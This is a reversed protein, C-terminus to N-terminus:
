KTSLLQIAEISKSRLSRIPYYITWGACVSNKWETIYIGSKYLVQTLEYSFIYYDNGMDSVNIVESERKSPFIRSPFKSTKFDYCVWNQGGDHILIKTSHELPYFKLKGVGQIFYDPLDIFKRNVRTSELNIVERSQYYEIFIFNGIFFSQLFNHSPSYGFKRISENDPDYVIISDPMSFFLFKNNAKKYYAGNLPVEQRNALNGDKYLYFRHESIFMLFRNEVIITSPLLPVQFTIEAYQDVGVTAFFCDSAANISWFRIVPPGIIEDSDFKSNPAVIQSTGANEDTARNFGVINGCWLLLRNEAAGDDCELTNILWPIGKNDNHLVAKIRSGTM